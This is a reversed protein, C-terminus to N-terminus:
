QQGGEILVETGRRALAEALETANRRGAQDGHQYITVCEIWDPIASALAPMRGATGAIWVGLGTALHATLGDEIGETVALGLLDNAPAIVIPQGMSPGLTLKAPEDAAKDGDLTLRTVHAGTIIKPPAIVGPDSEPALGFAGIMAPPYRDRPPLYGLTAPICPLAAVKLRKCLYKYVPTDSTIPRRQSWL